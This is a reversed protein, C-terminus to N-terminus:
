YRNYKKIKLRQLSESILKGLKYESEALRPRLSYVSSPPINNIYQIIGGYNKPLQNLKKDFPKYYPNPGKLNSNLEPSKICKAVYSKNVNISLPSFTEDFQASKQYDSVTSKCLDPTAKIKEWEKCWYSGRQFLGSYYDSLDIYFNDGSKAQTPTCEYFDKQRYKDQMQNIESNYDTRAGLKKTPMWFYTNDAFPLNQIADISSKYRDYYNGYEQKFETNNQIGKFPIQRYM